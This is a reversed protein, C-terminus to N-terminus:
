VHARGIETLMFRNLGQAGQSGGFILLTKRSPDLGYYKHAAERTISGKYYGERLPMAAIHTKGKLLTATIPFQVCTAHALPALLRNVKGPISNSEHLVIPIGEWKAALLVPFTHYSGFGVVLDPQFKRIHTRSEWIGRGMGVLNQALKIPNKVAIAGCSISQTPFLSNKFYPNSSLKGAMFLIELNPNELFLKKATAQAPFIHGGTGGAAIIIKKM